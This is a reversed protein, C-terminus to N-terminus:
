AKRIKKTLRDVAIKKERARGIRICDILAFYEYLNNNSEAIKPVSKHLPKLSLGRKKGKDYPWVYIIEDPVIIKSLAPASHATPLGREMTGIEAPFVYKVGHILFEELASIRPSRTIEDFLGAKKVRKIAAHTESKSIGASKAIEEYIWKNDPWQLIELLILIDQSKM